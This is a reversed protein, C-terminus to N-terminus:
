KGDTKGRDDLMLLYDASINLHECIRKATESNPFSQDLCYKYICSNDLGSLASFTFKNLGKSKLVLSLRQGLTDKKEYEDYNNINLLYNASVDLCKCLKIFAQYAPANRANLYNDMQKASIKTERAIDVDTKNAREMAVLLRYPLATELYNKDIM